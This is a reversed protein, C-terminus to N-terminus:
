IGGTCCPMESPLYFDHGLPTTVVGFFIAVQVDTLKGGVDAVGVDFLHKLIGAINAGVTPGLNM